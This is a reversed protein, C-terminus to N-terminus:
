DILEKGLEMIRPRKGGRTRYINEEYNIYPQDWTLFDSVGRAYELGLKKCFMCEEKFGKEFIWYKIM